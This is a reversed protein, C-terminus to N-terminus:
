RRIKQEHEKIENEYHEDLEQHAMKIDLRKDRTKLVKRNKKKWSNYPGDCRVCCYTKGKRLHKYPKM